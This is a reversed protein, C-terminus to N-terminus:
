QNNGVLTTTTNDYLYITDGAVGTGKVSSLAKTTTGNNAITTSSATDFVGTIVPAAETLDANVPQTALPGTANQSDVVQATYTWGASYGSTDTIEWTKGGPAVTATGILTGNAYVKVVDGADLPASLTGSLLRGASTDNTTWNKNITADATVGSDKTM